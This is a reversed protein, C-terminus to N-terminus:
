KSIFIFRKEEEMDAVISHLDNEGSNIEPVFYRAISDNFTSFVSSLFEKKLENNDSFLTDFNGSHSVWKGKKDKCKGWM